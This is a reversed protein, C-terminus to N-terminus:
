FGGVLGTRAASQREPQFNCAATFRQLLSDRCSHIEAMRASSHCVFRKPFNEGFPFDLSHGPGVGSEEVPQDDRLIQLGQPTSLRLDGWLNGVEGTLHLLVCPM